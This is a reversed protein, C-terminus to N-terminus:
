PPLIAGAPLARGQPVKKGFLDRDGPKAVVEGQPLAQRKEPGFQQYWKTNAFDVNQWRSPMSPLMEGAGDPLGMQKGVFVNKRM